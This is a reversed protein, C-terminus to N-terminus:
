NDTTGGKFETPSSQNGERNRGLVMQCGGGGGGDESGEVWAIFKQSTRIHITSVM